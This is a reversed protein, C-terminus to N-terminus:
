MISGSCQNYNSARKLGNNTKAASSFYWVRSFGHQNLQLDPLLQSLPRDPGSSCSQGICVYESETGQDTM